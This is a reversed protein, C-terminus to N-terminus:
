ANVFEYEPFKPSRVRNLITAPTCGVARAAESASRYKKRGIKIRLTNSPLVGSKARDSALKALRIKTEDSHTRGYFANLEGTRASAMESLRKRHEATRVAGKAYQNGLNIASLKLRTEPSHTRGYMPNSAGPKGYLRATEEFSMGAIRARLTETRRAIIGDRDPHGTLNDGGTAGRGLNMCVRSGHYKDLFHQELTRADELTETRIVEFKFSAEGYKSFTRQFHQNHHRGSRLSALHHYRRQAINASSGIYFRGNSKCTFKYVGIAM